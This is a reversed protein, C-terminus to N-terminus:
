PANLEISWRSSTLICTSRYVDEEVNAPVIERQISLPPLFYSTGRNKGERHLQGSELLRRLVKFVAQRSVGFHQASFTVLDQSHRTVNQLLFEQVEPRKLARPVRKDVKPAIKDVKRNV